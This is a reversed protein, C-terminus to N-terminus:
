SYLALPDPDLQIAGPKELGAQVVAVAQGQGQKGLLSKHALPDPDLQVAGPEEVISAEGTSGTSSDSSSSFEM